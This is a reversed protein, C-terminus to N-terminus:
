LTDRHGLPWGVDQIVTKTGRRSLLCAGVRLGGPEDHTSVTVPGMTAATLCPSATWSTPRRVNSCTARAARAPRFGLVPSFILIAAAFTGFNTGPAAKLAAMSGFAAFRLASFAAAFGTALLAARALFYPRAAQHTARTLLAGYHAAKKQHLSAQFTSSSREGCSAAGQRRM